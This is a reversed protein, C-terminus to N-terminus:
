AQSCRSIFGHARGLLIAPPAHLVEELRREFQRGLRTAGEHGAAALAIRLQGQVHQTQELGVLLIGVEQITQGASQGLDHDIHLDGAIGQHSLFQPRVGQGPMQGLAAHAVDVQGVTGVPGIALLHGDLHQAAAQVGRLHQRAELGFSLDQGAQTM